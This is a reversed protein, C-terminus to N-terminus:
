PKRGEFKIRSIWPAVKDLLKARRILEEIRNELDCTYMTLAVWGLCVRWRKIHFGGYSGFCLTISIGDMM